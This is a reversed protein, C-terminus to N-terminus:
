DRTLLLITKQYIYMLSTQGEEVFPVTVAPLIGALDCVSQIVKMAIGENHCQCYFITRANEKLEIIISPTM